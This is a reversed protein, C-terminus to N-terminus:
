YKIYTSSYTIYGKTQSRESLMIIKPNMWTTVHVSLENRKMESYYKIVFIDYNTEGSM